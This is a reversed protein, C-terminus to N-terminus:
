RAAHKQKPVVHSKRRNHNRGSGQRTAASHHASRGRAKLYRNSGAQESRNELRECCSNFPQQKSATPAGEGEQVHEELAALARPPVRQAMSFVPFELRGSDQGSNAAENEAKQFGSTKKPIAISQSPEENERRAVNAGTGVLEFQHQEGDVEARLTTAMIPPDSISPKQLFSVLGASVVASVICSAVTVFWQHRDYRRRLQVYRYLARWAPNNLADRAASLQKFREAAHDGPNLDPHCHKAAERFAIAITREDADPSIGLVDYPTKMTCWAIRRNDSRLNAAPTLIGALTPHRRPDKM